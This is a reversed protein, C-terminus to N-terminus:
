ICVLAKVKYTRARLLANVNLFATAKENCSTMRLQRVVSCLLEMITEMTKTSAPLSASSLYTLINERVTDKLVTGGNPGIVTPKAVTNGIVTNDDVSADGVTTEIKRELSYNYSRHEIKNKRRVVRHIARSIRVQARSYLRLSKTEGRQVCGM